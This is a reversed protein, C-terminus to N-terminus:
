KKSSGSGLQEGQGYKRQMVEEFEEDRQSPPIGNQSTPVATGDKKRQQTALIYPTNDTESM